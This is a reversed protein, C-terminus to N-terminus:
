KCPRRLLSLWVAVLVPFGLMVASLWDWGDDGLLAAILGVLTALGLGIPWGWLRIFRGKM